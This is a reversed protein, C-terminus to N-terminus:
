NKINKKEVSKMYLTYDTPDFIDGHGKDIAEIFGHKFYIHKAKYNDEEVGITFEYYGANELDNLVYELLKQGLGFGQYNKDLRYAQLYVRRNPITETELDHSIYNVSIEGIFKDNYEIVYTDTEHNKFEEIRKDKYLKWIEEDNDPFLDHLKDFEDINIKRFKYDKM